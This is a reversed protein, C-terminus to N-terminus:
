EEPTFERSRGKTEKSRFKAGKKNATKLRRRRRMKRMGARRLRLQLNERRPTLRRRLRGSRRPLLQTRILSPKTQRNLREGCRASSKKGGGRHERGPEGEEGHAQDREHLPLLREYTAKACKPGEEEEAEEGGGEKSTRAEGKTADSSSSNSHKLQSEGGAVGM